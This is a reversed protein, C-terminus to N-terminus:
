YTHEECIFSYIIGDNKFILNIGTDIIKSIFAFDGSLVFVNKIPNGNRNAVVVNQDNVVNSITNINFPIRNFINTNCYVEFWILNNIITNNNDNCYKLLFSILLQYYDGSKKKFIELALFTNKHVDANVNFRNAYNTNTPDLIEGIQSKVTPKNNSKKANISQFTSQQGGVIKSTATWTQDVKHFPYGTSTDYVSVSAINTGMISSINKRDVVDLTTPITINSFSSIGHIIIGTSAFQEVIKKASYINPKSPCSDADILACFLLYLTYGTTDFPGTKLDRVIGQNMDVVLASRDPIGLNDALTKGFYVGSNVARIRWRKGNRDTWLGPQQTNNINYQNFKINFQDKDCGFIQKVIYGDHMYKPPTGAPQGQRPNYAINNIHYEPPTPVSNNNPSPRFSFPRTIDTAPDIYQYQKLYNIFQNDHLKDYLVADLDHNIECLSYVLNELQQQPPLAM